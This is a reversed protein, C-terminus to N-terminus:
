DHLLLPLLLLVLLLHENNYHVRLPQPQGVVDLLRACQRHQGCHVRMTWICRLEASLRHFYRALSWLMRTGSQTQQISTGM